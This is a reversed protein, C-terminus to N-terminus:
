QRSSPSPTADAAHSTRMRHLGPALGIAQGARLGRYRGTNEDFGDAYAFSDDARTLLATGNEIAKVPPPPAAPLHSHVRSSEEETGRACGDEYGSVSLGRLIVGEDGM